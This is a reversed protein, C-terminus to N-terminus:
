KIVETIVDFGYNRDLIYSSSFRTLYFSMYLDGTSGVLNLIFIMGGLGAPLLLSFLSIITVPALLTILSKTRHLKIASVEQCYAYIVKFGFRVRGGFFKYSLGHLAEHVLTIPIMLLVVLIVSNITFDKTFNFISSDILIITYSDNILDMMSLSILLAFIFCIM